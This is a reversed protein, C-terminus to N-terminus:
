LSAINNSFHFSYRMEVFSSGMGIELFGVCHYISPENLAVWSGKQCEWAFLNTIISPRNDINECFRVKWSSKYGMHWPLYLFVGVKSDLQYYFDENIVTLCTAM